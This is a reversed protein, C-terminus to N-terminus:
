WLQFLSTYKKRWSFVTIASSFSYFTCGTYKWLHYHPLTIKKEKHSLLQIWIGDMLEWPSNMGFRIQTARLACKLFVKNSDTMELVCVCVCVCACVSAESFYRVLRPRRQLVRRQHHWVHSHLGHCRPLLGYHYHPLAGAGSHGPLLFLFSNVSHFSLKAWRFRWLHGRSAAANM